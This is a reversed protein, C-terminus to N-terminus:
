VGAFIASFRVLGIILFIGVGFSLVVGMLVGIIEPRTM